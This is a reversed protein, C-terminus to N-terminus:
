KVIREVPKTPPLLILVREKIEELTADESLQASAMNENGGGGFFEMIKGANVKGNSRAHISIKNEEDIRGIAFSLDAYERLKNAVKSLIIRNSQKPNLAFGVTSKVSISEESDIEPLSDTDSMEYLVASNSAINGLIIGMIEMDAYFDSQYLKSIYSDDAGEKNMLRAILSMLQPNRKQTYNSTDLNIGALIATSIEPNVKIGASSLVRYAIECASSKTTDIFFKEAKMTGANTDHHDVVIVHKFADFWGNFAVRSSQNVDTVLLFDNDTLLSFCNKRSIFRISACKDSMLKRVSTDLKSPLDDVVVYVAEPTKDYKPDNFRKNQRLTEAGYAFAVASGISDLDPNNHGVVFVNNSELVFKEYNVKLDTIFQKSAELDIGSKLENAM